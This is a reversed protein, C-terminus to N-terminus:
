SIDWLSYDFDHGTIGCDWTYQRDETILECVANINEPLVVSKLRGKKFEDTFSGLGHNFLLNILPINKIYNVNFTM